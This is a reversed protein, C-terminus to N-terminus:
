RSNTLTFIRDLHLHRDALVSWEAGASGRRIAPVYPLAGLCPAGSLRVIEDPGTEDALTTSSTLTNFVWGALALSRRQVESWTLLSHNIAGLSTRAVVLLSLGLLQALDAISGPGCPVLLGGVGEVVLYDHRRSLEHFAALIPEWTIIREELRAAISPALPRQLLVPNILDLPDDIQAARQLLEADERGGAAVPKMVGVDIGRANLGAAVLCAVVTKGVGTDTGTVFIGSPASM